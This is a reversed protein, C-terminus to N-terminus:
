SYTRLDRLKSDMSAPVLRVMSTTMDVVKAPGKLQASGDTLLSVLQAMIGPTFFICSEDDKRPSMIRFPFIQPATRILM